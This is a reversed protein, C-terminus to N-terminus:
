KEEELFAIIEPFFLNFDSEFQDYHKLLDEAAEDMRSKYPTRRSLGKLSRDIGEVHSYNVLWNQKIMYPLVYQARHPIIYIHDQIVAYVFEAFKDLPTKEYKKWNKALFHDYYLDIIVGSYHRYKDKIRNRSKKFIEHSDTFEDIRRHMLIGEVIGDDYQYAQNGKVFDAIFNGVLHPISRRALYAHALFNM